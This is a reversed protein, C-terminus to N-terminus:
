GMFTEFTVAEVSFPSTAQAQAHHVGQECPLCLTLKRRVGVLPRNGPQASRAPIGCQSTSRTPTSRLIGVTSSPVPWGNEGPGWLRRPPSRRWSNRGGLSQSVAFEAIQAPEVGMRQLSDRLVNGLWWRNHGLKM